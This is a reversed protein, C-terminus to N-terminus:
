LDFKIEGPFINFQCVVLNITIVILCLMSKDFIYEFTDSNSVLIKYAHLIDCEIHIVEEARFYM